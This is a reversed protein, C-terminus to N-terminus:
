KSTQDTFKLVVEVSFLKRFVHTRPASVEVAFRFALLNFPIREPVVNVADPWFVEAFNYTGVQDPNGVEGNQRPLIFAFPFLCMPLISVGGESLNLEFSGM